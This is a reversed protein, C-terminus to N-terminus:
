SSRVCRSRLAALKRLRGEVNRGSTGVASSRGSVGDNSGDIGPCAYAKDTVGNPAAPPAHSTPSGHPSGDVM